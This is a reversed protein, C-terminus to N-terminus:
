GGLMAFRGLFEMDGRNWGSARVARWVIEKPCRESALTSLHTQVLRKAEGDPLWVIYDQCLNFDMKPIWARVHKLIWRDPSISFDRLASFHQSLSDKSLTEAYDDLLKMIPATVMDSNTEVFNANFPAYAEASRQQYTERWQKNQVKQLAAEMTPGEVMGFSLWQVVLPGFDSWSAGLRKLLEHAPDHKKKRGGAGDSEFLTKWHSDYWDSTIARGARFYFVCIRVIENKDESYLSAGRDMFLQNIETLASSVRSVIRINGEGIAALCELMTSAQEKHGFFEEVLEKPCPNFFLEAHVVKERLQSLADAGGAPLKETNCVLIIKLEARSNETLGSAFGLVDELRLDRHAREVDDIVILLQRTKTFHWIASSIPSSFSAGLFRICFAYFFTRTTNIVGGDSIKNWLSSPQVCASVRDELQQISTCGFLSTYSIWKPLLKKDSQPPTAKSFYDRLFHSKGSGWPGKILLVRQTPRTFFCDLRSRVDQLATFAVERNNPHAPSMANNRFSSDLSDSM